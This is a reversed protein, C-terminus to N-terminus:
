ILYNGFTLPRVLYTLLCGPLSNNYIRKLNCQIVFFSYVLIMAYKDEKMIGEGHMNILCLVVVDQLCTTHTYKM